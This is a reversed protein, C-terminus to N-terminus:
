TPALSPVPQHHHASSAIWRAAGIPRDPILSPQTAVSMRPAEPRDISSASTFPVVSGSTSASSALARQSGLEKASSPRKALRVGLPDARDERVGVKEIHLDVPHRVCDLLLDGRGLRGNLQQARANWRRAAFTIMESIPVSMLANRVSFCRADHAPCHGPLAWDAPLRQKRFQRLPALHSSQVSSSHASAETRVLSTYRAM